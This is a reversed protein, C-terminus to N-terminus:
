KLPKLGLKARAENAAIIEPDTPDVARSKKSGAAGGKDSRSHRGERDRDRERGRDRDRDQERDRDRHQARSGDGNRYERERNHGERGPYDVSHYDRGRDRGRDRDRDDYRDYDGGGARGGERGSREADRDREGDREREQEDDRDHREAHRRRQEAAAQGAPEDGAAAEMIEQLMAAEQEAANAEQEMEQLTAEDLMLVSVRPELQGTKEMLMRCLMCSLLVDLRAPHCHLFQTYVVAHQYSSLDFVLLERQVETLPGIADLNRHYAHGRQGVSLISTAAVSGFM